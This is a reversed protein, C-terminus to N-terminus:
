RAGLAVRAPKPSMILEGGMSLCVILLRRNEILNFPPRRFTLSNADDRQSPESMDAIAFRKTEELRDVDVGNIVIM